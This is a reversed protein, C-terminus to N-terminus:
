CASMVTMLRLTVCHSETTVMCKVLERTTSGPPEFMALVLARWQAHDQALCIWRRDECGIERLYMHRLM